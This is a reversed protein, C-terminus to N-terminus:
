YQSNNILNEKYDKIMIFTQQKHLKPLRDDIKLKTVITKADCNITKEWNEAAKKYFKNIETNVTKYHLKADIYYHKGTKDSKIIKDIDKRMRHQLDNNFKINNIRTFLEKEFELLLKKCPLTKKPSSLRLTKKM